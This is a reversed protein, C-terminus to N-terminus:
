LGECVRGRLLMVDSLEGNDKDEFERDTQVEKSWKMVISLMM